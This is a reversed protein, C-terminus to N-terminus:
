KKGGNGIYDPDFFPILSSVLDKSEQNKGFFRLSIM